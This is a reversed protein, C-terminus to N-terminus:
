AAIVFGYIRLLVSLNLAIPNMDKITQLYEMEEGKVVRRYVKKSFADPCPPFNTPYNDSWDAYNDWWYPFDTSFSLEPPNNPKSYGSSISLMGASLCITLLILLKMPM